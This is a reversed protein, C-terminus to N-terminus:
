HRALRDDVEEAALEALTSIGAGGGGVCLYRGGVKVVHISLHPTLMTSEIVTFFRNGAGATLRARRLRRALLSLAVLALAVIGLKLAYGAWFSSTM